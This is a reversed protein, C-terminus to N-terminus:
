LYVGGIYAPVNLTPTIYFFEPFYNYFCTLFGQCPTPKTISYRPVGSYVPHLKKPAFSNHSVLFAISNFNSKSTGFAFLAIVIVLLVLFVCGVPNLQILETHEAPFVSGM